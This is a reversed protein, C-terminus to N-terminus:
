RAGGHAPAACRERVAADPLLVGSPALRPERSGRCLRKGPLGELVGRVSISIM